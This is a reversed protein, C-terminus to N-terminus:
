QIKFDCIIPDHDSCNSHPIYVRKLQLSSSYLVHDLRLKLGMGHFSFGFGFGGQWWADKLGKKQFPHLTSSGSIDNFDGCVVVSDETCDLLHQCVIEAQLRRAAYGYDMRKMIPLVALLLSKGKKRMNRIVVSYNNSMLHCNVIRIRKDGVRVAMSCVPLVEKEGDRAKCYWVHQLLEYRPDNASVWLQEFEEIPYKSFVSKFRSGKETGLEYPYVQVLRKRVEPYLNENYEQLLVIDAEQREIFRILGQTTGNNVSIKHARNVNYTLIRLEGDSKIRNGVRNFAFTESIWNLWLAVALLLLAWHWLGIIFLAVAVLPMLTVLVPVILIYKRLRAVGQHATGRQTPM